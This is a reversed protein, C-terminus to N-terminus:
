GVGVRHTERRLAGRIRIYKLDPPKLHTDRAIPYCKVAAIRRHVTFYLSLPVPSGVFRPRKHNIVRTLIWLRTREMGKM